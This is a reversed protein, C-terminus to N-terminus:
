FDVEIKIVKQMKKTCIQLKLYSFLFNRNTFMLTLVKLDLLQEISKILNLLRTKLSQIYNLGYLM